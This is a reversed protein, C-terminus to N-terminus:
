TAIPVSRPWLIWAGATSNSTLEWDKVMEATRRVAFRNMYRPSKLDTVLHLRLEQTKAISHLAPLVQRVAPLTAPLGEWVVELCSSERQAPPVPQFEGLLDVVPHVNENYAAINAAQEATSCVVADARELLRQIARLYSFVPRRSEGGVWKALGRFARKWGAREDLYADPLDVVIKRGRPARVWNTVDASTSLVVIENNDWSDVVEFPLGRM